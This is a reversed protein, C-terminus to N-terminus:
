QWGRSEARADATPAPEVAAPSEIASDDVPGWDEMDRIEPTTIVPPQGIEAAIKNIAMAQTYQSWRETSNGRLRASLNLKVYQPRPMLSSLAAEIRTTWRLLGKTNLNAERSEANVYELTSGSLPIGLERPDILFVQACIEAATWQRTQLFQAQEPTISTQKWTAGDDLVGPLGRARKGSRARRWAQAIEKMQEPQARRAMEIVGPMNLGDEFANAAYGQAALAVGLTERAYDLPALGVDAGPLMMAKMHLMEGRFENGAVRFVKRGGERRVTVTEPSVPVLEVIQAGSRTVVVYANGWMLLSSVVQTCWDTFDMDVTPQMLWTPKNIEVREGNRERFVDVPLTAISDAILQVCGTFALVGLSNQPTVTVGSATPAGDGPWAGWGADTAARRDGVPAFLRNLM